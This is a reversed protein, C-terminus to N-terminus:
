RSSNRMTNHRLKRKPNKHTRRRGGNTAVVPDVDLIKKKVIEDRFINPHFIVGSRIDLKDTWSLWIGNWENITFLDKSFEIGGIRDSVDKWFSEWNYNNINDARLAKLSPPNSDLFDYFNDFLLEFHMGYDPEIGKKYDKKIDKIMKKLFKRFKGTKDRNELEELIDSKEDKVLIYVATEILKNFPYRYEDRDFNKMFEDLNSASLQFITDKTASKLETVFANDPLTFEYRLAVTNSSRGTKGEKVINRWNTGYAYWFGMPKGYHSILVQDKPNNHFEKIKQSTYHYLTHSSAEAAM